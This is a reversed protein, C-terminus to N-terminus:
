NKASKVRKKNTSKDAAMFLTEIQILLILSTKIFEVRNFLKLDEGSLTLFNGVQLVSRNLMYMLIGFNLLFLPNLKLTKNKSLSTVCTLFVIASEVLFVIKNIGIFSEKSNFLKNINFLFPILLCLIMILYARKNVKRLILGILFILAIIVLVSCILM